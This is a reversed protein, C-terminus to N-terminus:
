HVIALAHLRDGIAERAAFLKAPDGDFDDARRVFTAVQSSVFPGQGASELLHLLEFDEMGERILELRISSLPVHHSGGIVAPKGPYLLTGDGHGSFAYISQLPDSSGGCSATFCYDITYYLEGQIRNAWALWQFVRNRMPSADAMYSPWTASAPGPVGGKACSEHEDCSQYWFLAKKASRALFADYSPRHSAEGHPEMQDLVPVLVDVADLLGHSSIDEVDATLLTRVASSAGHVANEEDLAQTFNCSNGSAPEDCHYFVLRDLWGKAAFHTSWRQLTTADNPGAYQITTLKAGPLRTKATGDLLPGYLADFHTWDDNKPGAYVVAGISVRRDLAFRAYLEHMAEVGDDGGCAEYSGYEQVCAGNWSMGFSSRLAATTPLDVKWVKLRVPMTAVVAGASKVTVNGVYWGSPAGPPVDVDIWATANHGAGVDIPFANRTEQFYTDRAPVLADPVEGSMGNLDSRHAADITLYRERSVRVPVTAGSKADRLDSAEIAVASKAADAHLHVQFSETEGRAASLLAWHVDATPADTSRVKAMSSTIWASKPYHSPDTDVAPPDALPDRSGQADPPTTGPPTAGPAGSNGGGPVGDDPPTSSSTGDGCAALAALGVVVLHRRM